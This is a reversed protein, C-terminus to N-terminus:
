ETAEDKKKKVGTVLHPVGNDDLLQDFAALETEKLESFRQQQETLSAKLLEYVERQQKTPAFDSGAITRTLYAIRGYLLRRWRLNDQRAGTLRLDFFVGEIEKLNDDLEKGATILDEAAELDTDELRAELDYVQKRLWEIENIIHAADTQMQRLDFLVEMQTSLDTVSAKSNPDQVVVLDRTQSQDGITLRVTYTGPPALLAFPRGDALPRYNKEPMRLHPDEDPKTRLKVEPAKEYRLNWHARHLGAEKKLKDFSYVVEGNADLIEMEVKEEPEAPLFYHLPAGYEPNFGAAPDEPQMHPDKRLRLRYAHRPAFLHHSEPLSGPELERLPTIDDLIWFGRGYTAVVLDGFHDQIELWHVPAHPLNSQLSHWHAGDDFSVWVGSETGLYLLGPRVPDERVVHAYSFVSRPLDSSIAKWTSGYDTTKYVYPESDGLQHRDVTLYATGAAHRSPEINSVTGLSPVGPLKATVNTWNEGGDRTVQVQGDNTGAWILGEELRSEALAFITPAFTPSADDLTLGGTRQQLEPDDTTLDPSILSWSDGGDTTQHVFQSGVYVRSHDHPSIVLPFTWQFRYRVDKAPWSEISEPWVSVDRNLSTELDHRELKGDYCGSWVINTEVPDPVAFGTECGGVPRWEGIPIGKAGYLSNSPGRTTPGDQRNGYVFYPVRQDVAVHYMQAIPLQPKLWSRTRNISISVGGDHGVIMRDANEPDIWMDHHDWGPQNKTLFSTKSGDLSTHHRVSMFYIEDRDDPSVLARSYYLPRQVLDNNASVMSWKEGGDDSRWVVGQFEEIPAFDRNSSTEILAYVRSSDDASLTLGIKGWPPKPLGDGELKKWTDGGDRTVWLSSGPGGSKRSWTNISIEWMGAFLIRPNNPDMVLDSAGTNEDVFLIREWSEGGDLTRYVGREQQPEYVSGLAAAYVVDPNQPNVIVRGIRGTKELGKREWNEGADTTKYIGDGISINARLFTEGTGAWVINPDTLAVALSGISSVPHDDFVPKWHAGGDTTKFIGGSAAGAYYVAPDGPVGVVAPVRNGVPGIFRYELGDFLKDHGASSSSEPAEAARAAGATLILATWVLTIASLCVKACRTELM